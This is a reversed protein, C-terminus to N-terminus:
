VAPGTSTSPDSVARLAEEVRGWDITGDVDDPDQELGLMTPPPHGSVAFIEDVASLRLAGPLGRDRAIEVLQALTERRATRWDFCAWAMLARAREEADLEPDRWFREAVARVETRRWCCCLVFLAEARLRADGHQLLPSVLEPRPDDFTKGIRVLLSAAERTANLGLLRALEQYEQDLM